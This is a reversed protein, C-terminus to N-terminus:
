VIKSHLKRNTQQLIIQESVVIVRRFNVNCTGCDTNGVDVGAVIATCAADYISLIQFQMTKLKFVHKSSLHM